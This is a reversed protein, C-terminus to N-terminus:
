KKWFPPPVGLGNVTLWIGNKRLRMEFIQRFLLTESSFLFPSNFTKFTMINIEKGTLILTGM